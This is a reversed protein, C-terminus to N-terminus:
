IGLEIHINKIGEDQLINIINVDKINFEKEFDSFIEEARPMNFWKTGINAYNRTLVNDMFDKGADYKENNADNSNYIDEISRDILLKGIMCNPAINFVILINPYMAAVIINM